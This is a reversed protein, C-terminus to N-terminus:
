YVGGSYGGSWGGNPLPATSQGYMPQQQMMQGYQYGQLATNLGGTIANGQAISGAAQANGMAGLANTSGTAFNTGAAGQQAAANSGMQTMGFLRNLQNDRDQTAIGMRYDELDQATRGSVLGGRAAAGAEINGVGQNLAFQAGPSMEMGRYGQPRDGMGLEYNYAALANTGAGYFPDFRQTTEDYIREQLALQEQAAQTQARQADGAADSQILSGALGLGGALLGFM